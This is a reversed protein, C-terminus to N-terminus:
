FSQQYPIEFVRIELRKKKVSIDRFHRLILAPRNWVWWLLRDLQDILYLIHM